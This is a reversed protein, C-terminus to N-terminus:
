DWSSKPVVTLQWPISGDEFRFPVVQKGLYNESKYWDKTSLESIFFVHVEKINPNLLLVNRLPYFVPMPNNQTRVKEDYGTGETARSFLHIYQSPQVVFKDKPNLTEATFLVRVVTKDALNDLEAKDIYFRGAKVYEVGDSFNGYITQEGINLYEKGDINKIYRGILMNYKLQDVEEEFKKWKESSVAAKKTFVGTSKGSVGPLFEAEFSSKDNHKIASKEAPVGSAFTYRFSNKYMERIERIFVMDQYDKYGHHPDIVATFYRENRVVKLNKDSYNIAKMIVRYDTRIPDSDEPPLGARVRAAGKLQPAVTPNIERSQSLVAKIYVEFYQNPSASKATESSYVGEFVEPVVKLQSFVPNAFFSLIAFITLSYKM